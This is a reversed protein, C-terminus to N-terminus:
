DGAPILEIVFSCYTFASWQWTINLFCLHIIFNLEINIMIAVIKKVLHEEGYISIVEFL